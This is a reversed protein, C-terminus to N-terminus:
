ISIPATPHHSHLGTYKHVFGKKNRFCKCYFSIILLLIIIKMIPNGVTSFLKVEMFSWFTPALSRIKTLTNNISFMSMHKIEPIKNVLNQLSDDTLSSINLSQM